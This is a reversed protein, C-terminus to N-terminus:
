VGFVEGVDVELGPFLVSKVRDGETFFADGALDYDEFTYVEIRRQEPDVLWFEGIGGDMYLDLKRIRDKSRSSPSLIEVALAPTGKYRDKENIDKEWDCLVILDPQVVNIDDEDVPRERRVSDRILDIDFPSLFPKCEGHDRFSDNFIIHLRGLIQQHTFGPSAMLYLVGDILEYRKESKETLELFEQYTVWNERRGKPPSTGYGAIPEGAEFGDTDRAYHLLIARKKGNKTIIVQEKKCLDLYKGVNNQFITSSVFM